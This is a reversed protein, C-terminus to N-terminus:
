NELVLDEIHPLAYPYPEKMPLQNWYVYPFRTESVGWGGVTGKVTPHDKFHVKLGQLETLSVCKVTHAKFHAVPTKFWYQGREIHPKSVYLIHALINVLFYHDERKEFYAKDRWDVFDLFKKM